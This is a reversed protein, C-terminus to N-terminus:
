PKVNGRRARRRRKRGISRSRLTKFPDGVPAPGISVTALQPSRGAGSPEVASAGVEMLAVLREELHRYGTYRIELPLELYAAIQAAKEHLGTDRTQALYVVKRYNRFYDTKLEPFRDLGLGRLVTGRFARVLFDTLFFTGPEESMLEQFAQGGYMEYCHPGAIRQIGHRALMQDLAGGTGCDGYVVFIQAYDARLAQIQREVDPAIRAPVLHDLASVGFLDVEWGHREIIDRVERALAGCIVLATKM